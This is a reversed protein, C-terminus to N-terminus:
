RDRVCRIPPQRDVQCFYGGFVAPRIAVQSGAHPARYPKDDNVQRWVAGERTTMVWDGGDDQEAGTLEVNLHAIPTDKVTRGSLAFTPAKFGFSQRRRAEVAQRDVV